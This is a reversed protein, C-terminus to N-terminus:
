FIVVFPIVHMEWSDIDIVELIVDNQCIFVALRIIDYNLKLFVKRRKKLKNDKSQYWIQHCKM